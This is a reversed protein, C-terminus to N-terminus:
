CRRNQLTSLLRRFAMSRAVLLPTAFFALMQQAIRDVHPQTVNLGRVESVGRERHFATTDAIILVRIEDLDIDTAYPAPSSVLAGANMSRCLM